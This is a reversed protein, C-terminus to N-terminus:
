DTAKFSMFIHLYLQFAAIVQKFIILVIIMWVLGKIIKAMAHAGKRHM